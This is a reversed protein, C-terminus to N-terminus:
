VGTSSRCASQIAVAFGYSLNNIGAPRLRKWGQIRQRLRSSGWGTALSVHSLNRPTTIEGVGLIVLYPEFNWQSLLSIQGWMWSSWGASGTLYVLLQNQSIRTCINSLKYGTFLENFWPLECKSFNFRGNIDMLIACQDSRLFKKDCKIWNKRPLNLLLGRNFCLRSKMLRLSGIEFIFIIRPNGVKWYRLIGRRLRSNWYPM